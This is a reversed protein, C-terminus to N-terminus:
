MLRCPNWKRRAAGKGPRPESSFFQGLHGIMNSNVSPSRVLRRSTLWETKGRETWLKYALETVGFGTPSFQDADAVPTSLSVEDSKWPAHSHILSKAFM